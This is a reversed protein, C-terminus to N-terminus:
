LWAFISMSTPWALLESVPVKGRNVGLAIEACPANDLREFLPGINNQTPPYRVSGGDNGARGVIVFPASLVVITEGMGEYSAMEEFARGVDRSAVEGAELRKGPWQDVNSKGNSFDTGRSVKHHCHLLAFIAFDCLIRAFGLKQILDLARIIVIWIHDGNQVVDNNFLQRRVSHIDM